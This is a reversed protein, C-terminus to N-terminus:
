LTLVLLCLSSPPEMMKEATGGGKFEGMVAAVISKMHVYAMEKGLCIRPGCHFVPYQFQDPMQDLGDSGLWREPKFKRGLSSLENLIRQECHPHGVILWFFWTLATSTSDKGALMFSIVIDRLFKRRQDQSDFTRIM